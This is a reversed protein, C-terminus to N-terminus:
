QHGETLAPPSQVRALLWTVILLAPAWVITLRVFGMREFLFGSLAPGGLLGVGWAMNYLGYGVGYSGAGATSVAEAMYTLSPTIVLAMAITNLVFCAITVLYSVTVGLLPLTCAVLMLGTMMLRRGGWRDALRGIIPHLITSAVAGSGFVVGVRAPGLGLTAELFLPLVPELMSITASV